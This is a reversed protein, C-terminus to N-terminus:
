RAAVRAPSLSIGALTRGSSVAASGASRSVSASMSVLQARVEVRKMASLGVLRQEVLAERDAPDGFAEAAGRSTASAFLADFLM